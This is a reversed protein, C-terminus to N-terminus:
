PKVLRYRAIEGEGLREQPPIWDLGLHHYFDKEDVFKKLTIKGTALDTEKIGHESLSLQKTLAYERLKINHEKSGTFHQLFSGWEDATAIKIDVQEGTALILRLVQEGAIIMRKVMKMSKMDNKVSGINHTVLGIDIDGVTPSQRRISGLAEARVTDPNARLYGIIESAIQSARSHSMRDRNTQGLSILLQQIIEQESKEGFGPLERILGQEAAALLQELATAEDNLHFQMALIYARKGGIGHVQTLPYVGAPIDKVMRQLEKINGSTFLEVLKASLKEGVGPIIDFDPDTLFMEKLQKPYNAISAAANEYAAIRYQNARKAALIESIFEFLDSIERNDM